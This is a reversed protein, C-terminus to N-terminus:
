YNVEAVLPGVLCCCHIFEVELIGVWNKDRSVKRFLVQFSIFKLVPLCKNQYVGRVWM